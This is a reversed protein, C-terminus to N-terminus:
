NKRKRKEGKRETGGREKRKKKILEQKKQIRKGKQEGGYEKKWKIKRLDSNREKHQQKYEMNSNGKENEQACREKEMERRKITMTESHSAGNGSNKAAKTRKSCYTASLIRPIDRGKHKKWGENEGENEERETAQRKKSKDKKKKGTKDKRLSVIKQCEM